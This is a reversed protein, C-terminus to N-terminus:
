RQLFHGVLKVLNTKMLLLHFGLNQVGKLDSTPGNGTGFTSSSEFGWFLHFHHLYVMLSLDFITTWHKVDTLSLIIFNNGVRLERRWVPRGNSITVIYKRWAVADLIYICIWFHCSIHKTIYINNLMRTIIATWDAAWDNVCVSHVISNQENVGWCPKICCVWKSRFNPGTETWFKSSSEFGWFLHFLHLYVM